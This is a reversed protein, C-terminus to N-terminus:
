QSPSTCWWMTTTIHLMIALIIVVYAFLVHWFCISLRTIISANTHLSANSRERRFWRNNLFDSDYTRRAAAVNRRLQTTWANLPLSPYRWKNCAEAYYRSYLSSKIKKRAGSITILFVSYWIKTSYGGANCSIQYYLCLQSTFRPLMTVDDILSRRKGKHPNTQIQVPNKQYLSSVPRQCTM